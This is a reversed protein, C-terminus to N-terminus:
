QLHFQKKIENKSEENSTDPFWNNKYVSRIDEIKNFNNTRTIKLPKREM